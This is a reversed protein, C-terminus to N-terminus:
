ILWRPKKKQVLIKETVVMELIQDKSLADDSEIERAAIMQIVQGLKDVKNMQAFLLDTETSEDYPIEAAMEDLLKSVDRYTPQEIGAIDRASEFMRRLTLVDPVTDSIRDIARLEIQSLRQKQAQRRDIKEFDEDLNVALPGVAKMLEFFESDDSGKDRPSHENQTM